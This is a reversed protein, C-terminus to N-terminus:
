PRVERRVQPLPEGSPLHKQLTEKESCDLFVPTVKWLGEFFLLTPM